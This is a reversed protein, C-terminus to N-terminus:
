ERIIKINGFNTRTSIQLKSSATDYNDTKGNLDNSIGSVSKGFIDIDGFSTSALAWAEIEKPIIIGINGFTSHLTINNIGPKLKAGKLSIDLNGFVISSSFDEIDLGNADIRKDGFIYPCGKEMMICSSGGGKRLYKVIIYLGILILAIPWLNGLSDWLSHDIIELSNLLLFIGVLILIAGWFIRRNCM